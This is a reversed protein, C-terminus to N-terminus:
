CVLTLTAPDNNPIVVKTPITIELYGSTPIPNATLFSFKYTAGTNSVGDVKDNFDVDASATGGTTMVLSSQALSPKVDTTGDPADEIKSIPTTSLDTATFM